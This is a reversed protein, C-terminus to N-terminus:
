AFDMGAGQGRNIGANVNIGHGRDQQAIFNMLEGAEHRTGRETLRAGEEAITMQTDLNLGNIRGM